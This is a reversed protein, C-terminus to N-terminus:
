FCFLPDLAVAAWPDPPVLFFFYFGRSSSRGGIIFQDRRIELVDGVSGEEVERAAAKGWSLFSQQSDPQLENWNRNM